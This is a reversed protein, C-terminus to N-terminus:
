TPVYSELKIKVKWTNLAWSQHKNYQLITDNVPLYTITFIILTNKKLPM